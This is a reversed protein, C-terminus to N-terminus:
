KIRYNMITKKEILTTITLGTVVGYEIESYYYTTVPYHVYYDSKIRSFSDAEKDYEFLYSVENDNV